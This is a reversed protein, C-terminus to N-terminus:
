ASRCAARRMGSTSRSSSRAPPSSATLADTRSGRACRIPRRRRPLDAGARGHDGSVRHREELRYRATCRRRDLQAGRVAARASKMSAEGAIMLPLLAPIIMSAHALRTRNCVANAFLVGVAVEGVALPLVMVLCVVGEWAVALAIGGALLMAAYATIWPRVKSGPARRAYVLAAIFGICFPLGVFLGVGYIEFVYISLAAVPV